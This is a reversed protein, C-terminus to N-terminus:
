QITLLDAGPPFDIDAIEHVLGWKKLEDPFLTPQAKMTALVQSVSRNSNAAIIRAINQQDAQLSKLTQMLQDEGMVLQGTATITNAVRHVLFRAQPVSRRTQGAAFLVVGISDVSGFNHTVVNVKAKIGRIFNYLSIGEHVLGGQTSILLRVDTVGQRVCNDLAQMLQSATAANVGAFYRIVVSSSLTMPPQPVLGPFAQQLLIAPFPPPPQSPPVGPPLSASVSTM